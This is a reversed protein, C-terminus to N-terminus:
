KGTAPAPAQNEPTQWGATDLNYYGQLQRYLDPHQSRLATPREFFTETAVAFFEAPNTAGYADIVDARGRRVRRRLAFFERQFVRAWEAYGSQGRPVAAGDAQGDQHDLQHAFEHIVPSPAVQLGTLAHSAADWALVVPGRRWAEGLRRPSEVLLGDRFELRGSVYAGPYVFVSRTHPFVQGSRGLLLVCAQAAITVRISDTMELGGCGELRKEDLFVHMLGVLRRKLPEPLQNYIMNRDLVADWGPGPPLAMLWDRRKRRREARWALCATLSVALAVCIATLLEEAM